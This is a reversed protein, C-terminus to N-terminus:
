SRCAPRCPPTAIPTKSPSSSGSTTGTANPTGSIVGTSTNLSAWSPLTGSTLAWTDSGSGGTAALTTSYSSGVDGGPLSTTTVSLAASIVISLSASVATDSNSDKVTFKLGSTTGTANPTGSIVGTSTNLSAWSPLTGSTLAWTDSGSGGTAALTTSYSSGVDGGPLSTTTVSLAASIVISLSASVATDSNSDKVTFELGSTTGTANPTGSIVGTSTNLSAWSPLTGSTLAWTDSGSGGTAALTTSYSSGVDGGPLSTTTVSLAASIVISLSASVATDSNSDKVTFELGSTTGTANPTGSIVGTSTNLSAWSPLTGSTLAWTDSGSGGTAALTTSYSSGVDGGPLSTTTVSLAASIVISLSASVATDSNSDKVTFKLGSTTGTANPTGSIVGTSTNLSAWSPLTGSTLAWTDSGSGGTAALTTSYSSGVDGGPLSTTTVSLAASIVISLSASVATDSNSDTVTFELGSTTGTANPTGSIVGTSTNLSAWSPLTGSTLAWTDSGSGGTAALTTSYSSGVDGGPLSTTTVSLAASIVISLSASVATDSNSDKVTFKLGSTTGTANPTGSIVGTSTNLSAWSPLTGSTLAWTDSGSGGTAALTTSYSSGVDGGPLSTTTVSLATSIVISLSASVATDNNSDTVTFKLGSTTGTATPTGSIVGTSTNLSAWSPLTGSTLAWTDSGSGGAAALTTSYSSGVDGGPLSTTTVSLAASIVISLSASVATDNNSDTVTFKLGSTTGTATPTGSIVGTSTNLSAWSPLTGSTLAWTDSGSGGAAALTTSYSSGVDGGPLSTTTVSLAASIVISLSASVATDNNSDTVTFKLGSTTGTATPTGSIVGTSTNLSAWSPLTGSTLAWTDSGSGGAAALTTSYSSGVDGGPLSTTTVSLAASIVISLSASVATDNNSDTVTFKLGSTTGTATPTGSIVGTSTNLSAWSPLTGSTLAWTDSGSGGAAALTTSYSSGVDGGPLSTTTVSLAASIVISLSASM